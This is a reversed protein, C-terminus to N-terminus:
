NKVEIRGTRQCYSELYKKEDPIGLSKLDAGGLGRHLEFPVRWQMIHYAFDALPDGLTSLEWDLIALVKHKNKDFILNDLRYDGHVISTQM